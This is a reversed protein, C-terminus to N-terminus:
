ITRIFLSWLVKEVEEFNLKSVIDNYKDSVREIRIALNKELIELEEHAEARDDLQRRKYEDMKNQQKKRFSRIIKNLKKVNNRSYEYPMHFMRIFGLFTSFFLIVVIALNIYIVIGAESDNIINWMRLESCLTMSM